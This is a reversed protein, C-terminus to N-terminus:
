KGPKVASVAAGALGKGKELFESFPSSHVDGDGYLRIPNAGMNEISLRLLLQSMEDNDQCHKDYGEFAMAAAYKFAYDERIRTLHGVKRSYFWAMWVFPSLVVVRTLITTYTFETPKEYIFLYLTVAAFAALVGFLWREANKVPKDLDTKRAMFSGAMSSRNADGITLRIQEQFGANAELQDNLIKQSTELSAIRTNSAELQKELEAQNTAMASKQETIDAKAVEITKTWTGTNQHHDQVEKALAKVNELATAVQKSHTDVNTNATSCQGHWAQIESLKAKADEHSKLLKENEPLIEELATRLEALDTEPRLAKKVVLLYTNLVLKRIHGFHNLFKNFDKEQNENPLSELFDRCSEVHKGLDRKFLIVDFTAESAEIEESLSISESLSTTLMDRGVGAYGFVDAGEPLKEAILESIQSLDSSTKEM